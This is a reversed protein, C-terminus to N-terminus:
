IKFLGAQRTDVWSAAGWWLNSIADAPDKRNSLRRGLSYFVSGFLLNNICTSRALQATSLTTTIVYIAKLAGAIMLIGGAYYMAKGVLILLTQMIESSIRELAQINEIRREWWSSNKENVEEGHLMPTSSSHIRVLPIDPGSEQVPKKDSDLRDLDLVSSPNGLRSPPDM